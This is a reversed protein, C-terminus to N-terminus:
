NPVLGDGIIKEYAPAAEVGVEGAGRPAGVADGHGRNLIQPHPVVPRNLLGARHARLTHVQPIEAAVSGM